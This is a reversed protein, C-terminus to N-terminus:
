QAPADGKKLRERAKEVDRHFVFLRDANGEPDTFNFQKGKKPKVKLNKELYDVQFTELDLLGATFSDDKETTEYKLGRATAVLRGKCSGMRHKHVVDISLNLKVERFRVRIERPGPEVDISEAIGDFGEASVNLRHNGPKVDTATVPAAGLFVRDLFVQANPVDAEIRLTGSTPAAPAPPEPEVPVPAPAPATDARPRRVTSSPKPAEPKPLDRPKPTLTPAPSRDAAPAQDPAPANSSCAISGALALAVVSIAIRHV